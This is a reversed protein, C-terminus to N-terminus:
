FRVADADRGLTRDDEVGDLVHCAMKRRLIDVGGDLLHATIDIDSRDVTRQFQELFQLHHSVGIHAGAGGVISQACVTGVMM